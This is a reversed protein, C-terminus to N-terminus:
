LFYNSYVPWKQGSLVFFIWACWLWVIKNKYPVIRFYFKLLISFAREVKEVQINKDLIIPYFIADEFLLVALAKLIEFPSKDHVYVFYQYCYYDLFCFCCCCFLFLCYVGWFFFLFLFLFFFLFCFCFFVFCFFFLFFM